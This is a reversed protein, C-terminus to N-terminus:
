GIEGQGLKDLVECKSVGKVITSGVVACHWWRCMKGDVEQERVQMDGVIGRYRLCLVGRDNLGYDWRDDLDDVKVPGVELGGRATGLLFCGHRGSIVGEVDAGKRLCEKLFAVGEREMLAAMPVCGRYLERISYGAGICEVYLQPLTILLVTVMAIGTGFVEASNVNRDLSFLYATVVAACLSFLAIVRILWKRGVVRGEADVSHIISSCQVKDHRAYIATPVLLDRRSLLGAYRLRNVAQSHPIACVAKAVDYRLLLGVPVNDGELLHAIDDALSEDHVARMAKAVVNEDAIPVVDYAPTCRYVWSLDGLRGGTSHVARCLEVKAFRFSAVVSSSVAYILAMSPGGLIPVVELLMERLAQQGEVDAIGLMDHGCTHQLSSGAHVFHFFPTCPRDTAEYVGVSVLVCTGSRFLAFYEVGTHRELVTAHGSAFWAQVKKLYYDKDVFRENEASVFDAACLRRLMAIYRRLPVGDRYIRHFGLVNDDNEVVDPNARLLLAVEGTPMSRRIPAASVTDAGFWASLTQEAQRRTVIVVGANILAICFERM